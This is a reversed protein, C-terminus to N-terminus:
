LDTARIQIEAHSRLSLSILGADKPSAGDEAEKHEYVFSVYIIQKVRQLRPKIRGTRLRALCQKAISDSFSKLRVLRQGM